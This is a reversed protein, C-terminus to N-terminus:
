DSSERVIRSLEVGADDITPTALNCIVHHNNDAWEGLVYSDRDEGSDYGKDVTFYRCPIRQTEPDDINDFDVTIILVVFYAESLARPKPMSIALTFLDNIRLETIAIDNTGSTDRDGSTDAMRRYLDALAYSDGAMRACFGRPDDLWLSRIAQHALLYRGSKGDVPAQRERKFLGFM